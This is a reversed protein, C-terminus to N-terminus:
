YESLKERLYNNITNSDEDSIGLFPRAKQVYEAYEESSGVAVANNSLVNYGISSNLDGSFWLIGGDNAGFKRLKRRAYKPDLAKWSRGEPDKKTDAIREITSAVLEGGVDALIPRLDDTKERLQQFLERCENMGNWVIAVSM